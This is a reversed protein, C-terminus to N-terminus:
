IVEPPMYPKDAFGKSVKFNSHALALQTKHTDSASRLLYSLFHKEKGDSKSKSSHDEHPEEEALLTQPVNMQYAMVGHTLVSFNMFLVSIVLLWRKVSLLFLTTVKFTANPTNIKQNTFVIQIM